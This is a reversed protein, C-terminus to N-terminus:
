IPLTQQQDLESFFPVQRTIQAFWLAYGDASPHLGDASYYRRPKIRFPDRERPLRLDVLHVHTLERMAVQWARRVKEARSSYLADLPWVWVPATGMDAPPIVAVHNARGSAIALTREAAETVRAQPSLRIVDDAGVFILILDFRGESTAIQDAIDASQAGDQSRNVVETGPFAAALRGPVTSRSDVSGTGVGTSDGVILFRRAVADESRSFPKTHVRNYRSHMLRFGQLVSWGAVVM